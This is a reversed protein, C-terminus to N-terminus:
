SSILDILTSEATLDTNGHIVETTSTAQFYLDMSIRTHLHLWQL